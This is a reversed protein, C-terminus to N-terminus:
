GSGEGGAGLVKRFVLFECATALRSAAEPALEEFPASRARYGLRAYWAPLRDKEPHVRGRTVLLQLRMTTVGRSRM